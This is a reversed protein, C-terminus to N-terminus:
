LSFTLEAETREATKQSRLKTQQADLLEDKVFQHVSKTDILNISKVVIHRDRNIDCSLFKDTFFQIVDMDSQSPRDYDLWEVEQIPYRSLMEGLQDIKNLLVIIKCKRFWSPAILSKFLELSENM